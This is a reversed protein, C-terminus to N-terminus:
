VRWRNMARTFSHLCSLVCGHFSTGSAGILGLTCRWVGALPVTRHSLRSRQLSSLAFCSCGPPRARDLEGPADTEKILHYHCCRAQSRQFPSTIIPPPFSLTIRFVQSCVLSVTQCSHLVQSELPCCSSVQCKLFPSQSLTISPKSSLFIM